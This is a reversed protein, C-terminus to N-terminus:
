LNGFEKIVAELEESGFGNFSKLLKGEKSIVEVYPIRTINKEDIDVSEDDVSIEEFDVGSEKLLKTLTRCPGCWEAGYKVIKM